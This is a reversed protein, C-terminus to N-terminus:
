LNNDWQGYGSPVIPTLLPAGLRVKAAALADSDQDLCILRGDKSLREHISISHGGGGTTADVYIGNPKISLGEICEDLMVPVHYTSM